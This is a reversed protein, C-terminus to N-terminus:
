LESSLYVHMFGATFDMAVVPLLVCRLGGAVQLARSPEQKQFGWGVVPGAAELGRARVDLSARIGTPSSTTRFWPRVVLAYWHPVLM